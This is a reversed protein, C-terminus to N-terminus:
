EKGATPASQKGFRAEWGEGKYLPQPLVACHGNRIRILFDCSFGKIAVPSLLDVILTCLDNNAAKFQWTIKEGSTM